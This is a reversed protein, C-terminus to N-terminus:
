RIWRRLLDRVARLWPAHAKALRVAGRRARVQLGYAAGRASGPRVLLIRANRAEHPRWRQKHEEAGRLMSMTSCGLRYAMPLTDALLMTTVDVRERLRPEAGYLYGGVLDHGTLVLSSAVLREDLRYELLAAQGSGIMAGAARTLHAAFEPSLHARNVGRGQWQAEHLRLLDGIGRGADDAAVERVDVCARNLQNIRRRVTKRTHSPLSAVFDAMPMAPLELCLSADVDRRPGPWAAYLATTVAAGPRVEPFDIAQWDPEAILATALIPGAETALGDDV